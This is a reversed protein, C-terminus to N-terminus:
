DRNCGLAAGSLCSHFPGRSGIERETNLKNGVDCPPVPFNMRMSIPRRTAVTRVLGRRRDVTVPVLVGTGVLILSNVTSAKKPKPRIAAAQPPADVGEDPPDEEPPDEELPDVEVLASTLAQM